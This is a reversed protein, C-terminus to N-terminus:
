IFALTSQTAFIGNRNVRIILRENNIAMIAPPRVFPSGRIKRFTIIKFFCKECEITILNNKKATITIGSDPLEKIINFFRKAPITIAGEEIIDVPFIYSIGIDLDTAILRLNHKITEILINSLIPLTNRENIVNQAIQTAKLLDEKNTKIKM